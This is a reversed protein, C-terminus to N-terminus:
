RAHNHEQEIQRSRRSRPIRQDLDNRPQHRLCGRSTENDERTSPITCGRHFRLTLDRRFFSIFIFCTCAWPLLSGLYFIFCTCAVTFAFWLFFHFVHENVILLCWSFNSVRAFTWPLLLFFYFAGFRSWSIINPKTQEWGKDWMLFPM